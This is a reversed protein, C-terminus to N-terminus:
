DQFHRAVRQSPHLLRRSALLVKDLDDQDTTRADEEAAERLIESYGIIANLPSRLEHSVNAIFQSKEVNASEARSRAAQQKTVSEVLEGRHAASQLASAAFFVNLLLVVLAIQAPVGFAFPALCAVAFSPATCAAFQWKENAFYTIGSIIAFGFTMMAVFWGVLEGSLVGSLPAAAYVCAIALIIGRHYHRLWDGRGKLLAVARPTTWPRGALEWSLIAAVYAGAAWLPLWLLSSVGLILAFAVRGNVGKRAMQVETSIAADTQEQTPRLSLHEFMTEAVM